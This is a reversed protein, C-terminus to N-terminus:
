KLDDENRIVHEYYNRQWVHIGPTHRIQNIRKTTASKFLRIITPISNSVPKAFQEVTPALQLTGRGSDMIIIIGHVHNPMVVFEDIKINKRIQKTKLWEDRVIKGYENLVMKGNVIKGLFCEGKHTCVTVFYGGAPSYDYEKLRISRRHHTDLNYKVSVRNEPITKVL